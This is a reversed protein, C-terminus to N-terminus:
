NTLMYRYLVFGGTHSDVAHIPMKEIRTAHLYTMMM